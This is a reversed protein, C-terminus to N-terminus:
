TKKNCYEVESLDLCDMKKIISVGDISVDRFGTSTKGSKKILDQELGSHQNISLLIVKPKSAHHAKFNWIADKIESFM